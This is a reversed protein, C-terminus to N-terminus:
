GSCKPRPTSSVSSSRESGRLSNSWRPRWIPPCTWSSKWLPLAPRRRGPVSMQQSPRRHRFRSQMRLHPLLELQAFSCWTAMAFPALNSRPSQLKDMDRVVAIRVYQMLYHALANDARTADTIEAASASGPVMAAMQTTGALPHSTLKREKLTQGRQAVPKWCWMENM